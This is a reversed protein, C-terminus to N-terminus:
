KPTETGPPLKMTFAGTVPDIEPEKGFMTRLLQVRDPEYTRLGIKDLGPLKDKAEDAAPTAPPEDRPPARRLSPVDRRPGTSSAFRGIHPM